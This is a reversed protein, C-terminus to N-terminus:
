QESDDVMYEGTEIIFGTRHCEPCEMDKLLVGEPRVDIFRKLCMLCICEAVTYSNPPAHYVGCDELGPIVPEAPEFPCEVPVVMPNPNRASIECGIAEHIPCKLCNEPFDANFVIM